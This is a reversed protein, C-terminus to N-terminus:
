RQREVLNTLLSAEQRLNLKPTWIETKSSSRQFTVEIKGGSLLVKRMNRDNGIASSITIKLEARECGTHGGLRFAILSGAPNFM